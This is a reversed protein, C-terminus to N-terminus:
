GGGGAFLLRAWLAGLLLLTAVVTHHEKNRLIRGWGFGCEAALAGPAEAPRYGSLRVGVAPVAERYRDYSEGYTDRLWEEEAAVTPLYFLAFVVAVLLFSWWIGSAVCLGLGILASGLYLPHRTHAFPGTVALVSSKTLHGAAWLRLAQGALALATGALLLLPVPRMGLLWFALVIAVPVLRTFTLRHAPLFRSLNM